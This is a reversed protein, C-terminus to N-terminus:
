PYASSNRIIHVIRRHGASVTGQPNSAARYRIIRVSRRHVASETRQPNSAARYRIIRVSRRHVASETRQPSRAVVPLPLAKNEQPREGTAIGNISTITGRDLPCTNHNLDLWPKLCDRHYAHGCNLTSVRALPLIDEYCIACVPKEAVAAM